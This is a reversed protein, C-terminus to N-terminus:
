LKSRSAKDRLTDIKDKRTNFGVKADHSVSKGLSAQLDTGVLKDQSNPNPDIDDVRHTYPNPQNPDYPAPPPPMTYMFLTVDTVSHNFSKINDKMEKKRRSKFSNPMDKIDYKYRSKERDILASRSLKNSLKDINGKSERIKIVDPYKSKIINVSESIREDKPCTYKVTNGNSTVLIYTRTDSESYTYPATEFAYKEIGKAEDPTIEEVESFNNDKRFKKVKGHHEGLLKLKEGLKLDESASKRIIKNESKLGKLDRKLSKVRLKERLKNLKDESDVITLDEIINRDSNHSRKSKMLETGATLRTEFPGGTIIKRSPYIIYAYYYM